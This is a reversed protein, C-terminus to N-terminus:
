FTGLVPFLWVQWSLPGPREFFIAISPTGMALNVNEHLMSYPNGRGIRNEIQKMEVKRRGM